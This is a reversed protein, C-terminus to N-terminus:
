GECNMLGAQSPHRSIFARNSNPKFIVVGAKAEQRSVKCSPMGVDLLSISVITCDNVSKVKLFSLRYVAM